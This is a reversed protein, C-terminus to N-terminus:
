FEALGMIEVLILDTFAVYDAIGKMLKVELIGPIRLSSFRSPFINRINQPHKSM